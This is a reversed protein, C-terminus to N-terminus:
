KGFLVNAAKIAINDSECWCENLFSVTIDELKEVLSAPVFLCLEHGAPDTYNGFLPTCGEFAPDSDMSEAHRKILYASMDMLLKCKDKEKETKAPERVECMDCYYSEDHLAVLLVGLKGELHVVYKSCEGDAAFIRDFLERCKSPLEDEEHHNYSEGDGPMNVEGCVNHWYFLHNKDYVENLSKM